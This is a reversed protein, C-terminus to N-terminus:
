EGKTTVAALNLVTFEKGGGREKSQCTKSEGESGCVDYHERDEDWYIITTPSSSVGRGLASAGNPWVKGVGAKLGTAADFVISRATSESVPTSDHGSLLAFRTGLRDDDSGMLTLESPLTKRVFGDVRQAIVGEKTMAFCWDPLCSMGKAGDPVQVDKSEGTELNVLRHQNTVDGRRTRDGAWPWSLLHLGDSGAIRQPTGGTLPVRYVGGSRVSWVVSDDTVGIREVEAMSGTVEGLQKAEGGERPMIWFDAWKDGNNPTEGYWAIHKEGVEFNQAYYGRVNTPAPVDGLVRASKAASDYVELRGAKEFSSEAILLVETPSMGTIPRYKWGDAAKAPMKFVAKPWVEAAPQVELRSPEGSTVTVAPGAQGGGSSLVATTGGAVAVVAAAALMVQVRQRIRRARRRAAVAGALGDSRVQDAATRLTRILDEESRM